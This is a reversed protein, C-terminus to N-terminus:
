DTYRLLAAGKSFFDLDSIGDASSYRPILACSPALNHVDVLVRIRGKILFLKSLTRSPAPVQVKDRVKCVRILAPVTLHPNIQYLQALTLLRFAVQRCASVGQIHRYRLRIVEMGFINLNNSLHCDSDNLRASKITVTM